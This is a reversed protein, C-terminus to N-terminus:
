NIALYVRMKNRYETFRYELHSLQAELRQITEHQENLLNVIRRADVTNVFAKFKGKDEISNQNVNYRFRKTMRAVGKLDM